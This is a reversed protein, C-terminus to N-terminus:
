IGDPPSAPHPLGPDRTVAGGRPHTHLSAASVAATGGPAEQTITSPAQTGGAIGNPAGTAQIGLATVQDHGVSDPPTPLSAASLAATGPAEETEVSSAQTGGAVGDMPVLHGAGVDTTAIRLTPMVPIAIKGITPITAPVSPAVPCLRVSDGWTYWERTTLCGTQSTLALFTNGKVCKLSVGGCFGPQIEFRVFACITLLNQRIDSYDSWLDHQPCLTVM